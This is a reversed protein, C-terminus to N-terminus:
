QPLVAKVESLTVFKIMKGFPTQMMVVAATGEVILERGRYAAADDLGEIAENGIYWINGGADTLLSEGDDNLSFIGKVLVEDGTVAENWVSYKDTDNNEQPSDTKEMVSESVVAANEPGASGAPSPSDAFLSLMHIMVAISFLNAYRM